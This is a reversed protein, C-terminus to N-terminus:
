PAIPTQGVLRRVTALYSERAIRLADAQESTTLTHLIDAPTLGITQLALVDLADM